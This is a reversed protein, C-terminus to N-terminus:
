MCISNISLPKSSSHKNCTRIHYPLLWSLANINPHVLFHKWICHIVLFSLNVIRDIVRNISQLNRFQNSQPDFGQCSAHSSSASDLCGDHGARMCLLSAKPFSPFQTLSQQRTTQSPHQTLTLSKESLGTVPNGKPASLLWRCAYNGPDCFDIDCKLGGIPPGAKEARQSCARPPWAVHLVTWFRPSFEICAPMDEDKNDSGRLM